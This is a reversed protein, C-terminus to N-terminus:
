YVTRASNINRSRTDHFRCLYKWSVHCLGTCKCLNRRDVALSHPLSQSDLAAPRSHLPRIDGTVKYTNGSGFVATICVAPNFLGGSIRYWGWATVLLSFGYALSIFVVTQASNGGNRSQPIEANQNIIMLHAAFAFYLFMFTGVFEGSAAIFHNKISKRWGKKEHQSGFPQEPQNHSRRYGNRASSYEEERFYQKDQSARPSNQHSSQHQHRVSSYQPHFSPSIRNSSTEAPPYESHQHSQGQLRVGPKPRTTM